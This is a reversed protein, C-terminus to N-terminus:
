PTEKLLRARLDFGLGPNRSDESRDLTGDPEVEVGEIEPLAELGTRLRELSRFARVPDPDVRGSIRVEGLAESSTVSLSTPLLEAPICAGIRSLTVGPDFGVDGVASLRTVQDELDIVAQEFARDAVDLDEVGVALQEARAQQARVRQQAEDVRGVTVAAIVLASLSVGVGLVTRERRGLPIPAKLELSFPGEHVASLLSLEQFVSAEVDGQHAPEFIAAAAALSSKMVSEFLRARAEPMGLVFVCSVGEGRRVKRHFADLNKLEQLIALPLTPVRSFDGDLVTQSLLLEGSILSTVVSRPGIDIVIASRQRAFSAEDALKHCAYSLRALCAPLVSEVTKGRRALESRLPEIRARSTAALLYRIEKGDQELNGVPGLVRARFQLDGAELNTLKAARRALVLALEKRPMPPLDITATTVWGPGLALKLASRRSGLLDAIEGAQAKAAEPSASCSRILAASSGRWLRASAQDSDLVLIDIGGSRQLWPALNPM